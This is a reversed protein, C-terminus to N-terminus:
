CTIKPKPLDPNAWWPAKEYVVCGGLQIKSNVAKSIKERLCGHSHYKRAIETLENVLQAKEHDKM